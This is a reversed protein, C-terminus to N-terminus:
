GARLIQRLAADLGPAQFEFGAGRAADPLVKQSGLLLGSMEGFLGRLVFAPMPLLAPRHLAQALLRTFDENRLPEPSTANFAGSLEPSETLWRILRVLDARTIWSMWQRGSGLRGGAGLRFAPLMRALAGGDRDLVIGTRIRCVRVGLAEAAQAQAEWDRCLRAAFDTGPASSETLAEDGRDGYWGIASGNVLSEPPQPQRRMWDVLERTFDVRSRVFAAKLRANWRGSALAEGQLNIVSGIGQAQDLACICEVAPPLIARARDPARTLVTVAHGSALLSPCLAQGIFGSGGTVLFKM